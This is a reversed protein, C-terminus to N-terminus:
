YLNNTRRKTKRRKTKRTKTKRRKSKKGGRYPKLFRKFKDLISSNKFKPKPQEQLQQQPNPAIYCVESQIKVKEENCQPCRWNIGKIEQTNILKLIKENYCDIHSVFPCQKEPDPRDYKNYRFGIINTCQMYGQGQIIIPELCFFCRGCDKGKSEQDGM